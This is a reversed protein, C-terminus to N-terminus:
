QIREARKSRSKGFELSSITGSPDKVFHFEAEVFQTYYDTESEPKIEFWSSSGSRKIMLHNGQRTVEWTVTTDETNRYVGACANLAENSVEVRTRRTYLPPDKMPLLCGPEAFLSDEVAEDITIETFEMVMERHEEGQNRGLRIRHPRTVTGVPRYDEFTIEGVRLLFGTETDFAMEGTTGEESTGVVVIVEKNDISDLGSVKLVPFLDRLWLPAETDLILALEVVQTAPLSWISDSDVGWADQGNCRYSIQNGWSFTQDYRWRNSPKAYTTLPIKGTVGRMLTGRRTEGAVESLATGGCADIYKEIIAAAQPLQEGIARAPGLWVAALGVLATLIPGTVASKTKV